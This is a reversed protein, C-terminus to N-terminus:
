KMAPQTCCSPEGGPPRASGAPAPCALGSRIIFDVDSRSVEETGFTRVSRRRRLAEELPMLQGLDERDDAGPASTLLDHMLSTEAIVPM